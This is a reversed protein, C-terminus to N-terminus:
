TIFYYKVQQVSEVYVNIQLQLRLQLQQQRQKPLLHVRSHSSIYYFVLYFLVFLVFCFLVFCFLVFCLFLVFYFLIKRKEDDKKQAIFSETLLVTCNLFNLDPYRCTSM